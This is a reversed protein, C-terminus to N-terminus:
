HYPRTGRLSLPTCGRMRKYFRVFSPSSAFNLRDAIQAVTLDTTKILWTAEIALMEDICDVVTKGTIKKVIRSLYNETIHLRDAYFTIGHQTIFNEQLLSYFSIFIDETRSSIDLRVKEFAQICILDDVFISYLM